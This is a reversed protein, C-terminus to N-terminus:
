KVVEQWGDGTGFSCLAERAVYGWSPTASLSCCLDQKGEWSGAAGLALCLAGEGGQGGGGKRGIKRDVFTRLWLTAM